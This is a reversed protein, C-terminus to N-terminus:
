FFGVILCNCCVLMCASKVFLTYSLHFNHNQETTNTFYYGIEIKIESNDSLFVQNLSSDLYNFPLLPKLIITGEKQILQYYNVDKKKKDSSM